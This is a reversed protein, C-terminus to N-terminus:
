IICTLIACLTRHTQHAFSLVIAEGLVEILAIIPSLFKKIMRFTNRLIGVNSKRRRDPLVHSPSNIAWAWVVDHCSEKNWITRIYSSTVFCAKASGSQGNMFRNTSSCGFTLTWLIALLEEIIKQDFETQFSLCAIKFACTHPGLKRPSAGCSVLHVESSVPSSFSALLHCPSSFVTGKIPVVVFSADAFQHDYILVVHVTLLGSFIDVWWRTWSWCGTRSRGTREFFKVFQDFLDFVIWM